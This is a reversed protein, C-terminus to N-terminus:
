PMSISSNGGLDGLDREPQRVVLHVLFHAGFEAEIERPVQRVALGVM